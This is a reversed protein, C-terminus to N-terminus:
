CKLLFSEMVAIYLMLTLPCFTTVKFDLFLLWRTVQIWAHFKQFSHEINYMNAIAECAPAFVGFPEVV